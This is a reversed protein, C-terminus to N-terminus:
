LLMPPPVIKVERVGCLLNVSNVKNITRINVMHTFNWSVLYDCSNSVCCAIHILDDRNRERLVEHQLYKETLERQDQTIPVRNYTILELYKAFIVRKKANAEALEDFTLSSIIIEYRDQQLVKWVEQTIVMKDPTDKQDVYSIVSTDLYIRPKRM